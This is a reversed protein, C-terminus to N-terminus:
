RGHAEEGVAQRAARLAIPDGIEELKSVPMGNEIFDAWNLGHKAFFARSGKMCIGAARIHRHYVRLQGNPLVAPKFDGTAADAIKAIIPDGTAKLDTVTVGEDLFLRWDIGHAELTMRATRVSVEAVRLHRV